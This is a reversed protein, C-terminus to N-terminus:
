EMGKIDNLLYDLGNIKIEYLTALLMGLKGEPLGTRYFWEVYYSPLNCLLTGKYKGFPMEMTTLEKLLQTDM